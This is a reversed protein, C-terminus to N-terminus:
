KGAVKRAAKVAVHKVTRAGTKTKHLITKANVLVTTALATVSLVQVLTVAPLPLTLFILLALRKM